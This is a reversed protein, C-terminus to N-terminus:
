SEPEQQSSATNSGYPDSPSASEQVPPASAQTDNSQPLSSLAVTSQSVSTMPDEDIIAGKAKCAALQEKTLGKTGRLDTDKLSLADELNTKSLDAGELNAESFDARSFKAEVLFTKSLDASDLNAESFDAGLLHSNRLTAGMLFTGRLTAGSLNAEGLNANLLNARSLNARRIDAESLNASILDANRLSAEVMWVQKLDAERLYAKDLRIGTADLVQLGYKSKKVQGRALPFSEKFVAILAQSLTSPSLITNPDDPLHPTRSLRLHAVALDFTQVYFREYGPYLFTRLLIAAGIKAGEKEDGLGIVAAQFREEARKELENQREKLEKDQADRRDSHWRWLGFLAGIVIVLTSLLSSLITAANSWLWNGLTHQQGAIQQALQEKNLATVTADETPTEQVTITTPTAARLIVAQEHALSVSTWSVAVVLFLAM